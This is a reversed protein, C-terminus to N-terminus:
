FCTWCYMGLAALADMILNVWLLQLVNLPMEGTTVAAVFAVVLAVLNITLQFQVVCTSQEAYNCPDTVATPVANSLAGYVIKAWIHPGTLAVACCISQEANAVDKAICTASPLDGRCLCSSRDRCSHRYGPVTLSTTTHFATFPQTLTYPHTLSDFTPECLKVGRYM